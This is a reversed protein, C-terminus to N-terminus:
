DVRDYIRDHLRCAGALNAVALNEDRIDLAGQPDTGPLDIVCCQLGLKPENAPPALRTHRVSGHVPRELTELRHGRRQPRPPAATQRHKKRVPLPEM